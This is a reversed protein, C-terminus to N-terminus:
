SAGCSTQEVSCSWVTRGAKTTPVFSVVFRAPEGDARNENELAPEVEGEGFPHLCGFCTKADDFAISNCIPCTKM